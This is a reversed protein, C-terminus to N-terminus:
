ATLRTNGAKRKSPQQTSGLRRPREISRGDPGLLLESQRHIQRWDPKKGASGPMDKWCENTKAVLFDEAQETTARGALMQLGSTTVGASPLLPDREKGRTAIVTLETRVANHFSPSQSAIRLFSLTERVRWQLKPTPPALLGLEEEGPALLRKLLQTLADM